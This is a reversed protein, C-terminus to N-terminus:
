ITNDSFMLKEKPTCGVASSRTIRIAREWEGNASECNGSDWYATGLKNYIPVLSTSNDGLDFRTIMLAEYYCDIAREYEGEVHHVDGILVLLKAVSLHCHGYCIREIDLANSYAELAQQNMHNERYESGVNILVAAMEEDSIGSNMLKTSTAYRGHAMM